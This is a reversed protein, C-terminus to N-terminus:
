SAEELIIFVEFYEFIVEKGNVVMEGEFSSHVLGFVYVFQLHQVDPVGILLLGLTINSYRFTM